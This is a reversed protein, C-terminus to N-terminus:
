HKKSSSLFYIGGGAMYSAVDWPDSVGKPRLVYEWMLGCVAMYLMIPILKKLRWKFRSFHLMLNTYACFCIGAMLDNFHADLFYGIYPLDVNYRFFLRNISYLAFASLLVAWDRGM